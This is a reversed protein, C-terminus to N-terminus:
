SAVQEYDNFIRLNYKRDLYELAPRYLYINKQCFKVIEKLPVVFNDDKIESLEDRIHEVVRSYFKDVGKFSGEVIAGIMDSINEDMDDCM